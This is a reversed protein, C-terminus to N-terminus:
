ELQLAYRPRSEVWNGPNHTIFSAMGLFELCNSDQGDLAAGPGGHKIPARKSV